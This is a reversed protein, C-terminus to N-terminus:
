VYASWPIWGVASLFSGVIVALPLCPWLILWIAGLLVHGVFMIVGIVVLVLRILAGIFRSILRDFWARVQVDLGGRVSGADIQRFPSFFNGVLLEISYRDAVIAM